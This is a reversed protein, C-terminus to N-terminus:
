RSFCAPVRRPFCAHELPVGAVDMRLAFADGITSQSSNSTLGFKLQTIPCSSDLGPRNPLREHSPLKAGMILPLLLPIAASDLRIQLRLRPCPDSPTFVTEFPRRGDFAPWAFYPHPLRFLFVVSTDEARSERFVEGPQGIVAIEELKGSVLLDGCDILDADNTSRWRLSRCKAAAKTRDM